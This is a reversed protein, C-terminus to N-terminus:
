AGIHVLSAWLGPSDPHQERVAAVATHLAVAVAPTAGAAALQRNLETALQDTVQKAVEDSVAWLTAVVDRYGALHFAAGIHLADDALRVGGRATECALLVALEARPLDAGLLDTLALPGDYLWLCSRSPEELDALPMAPSRCGPTGRSRLASTAPALEVARRASSVAAEVTDPDGSHQSLSRLSNALTHLLGARDAADGRHSDVAARNVQVAERLLAVDDSERWARRLAAGLANLVRTALDRGSTTGPANHRSRTSSPPIPAWLTSTAPGRPSCGPWWGPSSRM